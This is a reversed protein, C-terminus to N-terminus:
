WPLQANLVLVHKFCVCVHTQCLNCKKFINLNDDLKKLAQSNKGKDGSEPNLKRHFLHSLRPFKAVIACVALRPTIKKLSGYHYIVVRSNTGHHRYCCGGKWHWEIFIPIVVFVNCNIQLPITLSRYGKRLLVLVIRYTFTFLPKNTKRRRWCM